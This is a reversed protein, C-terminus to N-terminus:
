IGYVRIIDNNNCEVEARGRDRTIVIIDDKCRSIVIVYGLYMQIIDKNNANMRPKKKSEQLLLSIM